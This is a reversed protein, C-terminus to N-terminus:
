RRGFHRYPHGHHRESIGAAEIKVDVIRRERGVLAVTPRCSRVGQRTARVRQAHGGAGSGVEGVVAGGDATGAGRAAGNLRADPLAARDGTKTQRAGARLGAARGSTCGPEQLATGGSLRGLEAAVDEIAAEVAALDWRRAPQADGAEGTGPHRSGAQGLDIRVPDQGVHGIDQPGEISPVVDIAIDCEAAIAMDFVIGMSSPTM